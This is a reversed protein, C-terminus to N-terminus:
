WKIATFVITIPVNFAAIQIERYWLQSALGKQVKGRHNGHVTPIISSEESANGCQAQEVRLVPAEALNMPM